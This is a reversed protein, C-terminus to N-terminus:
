WMDNKTKESSSAKEEHSAKIHTRLDSDSAFWMDKGHSKCYPCSIGLKGEDIAEFSGLHERSILNQSIELKIENKPQSDENSSMRISSITEDTFTKKDELILRGIECLNTEVEEWLGDKTPSKGYVYFSTKEPINNKWSEYGKELELRLDLRSIPVLANKDKEEEKMLPLYLNKRKDEDDRQSNVYGIQDLRNLMVRISEESLKKRFKENYELTLEKLYWSDRTKVITHYFDLIRKETGTRTTEFIQRYIEMAVGLDELTSLLFDTEGEKMHPRQLYPLLTITQLLQVFHQFDRMDRTIQHPFVSYLNLFPVVVDAQSKTLKDFLFRLLSNLAKFTQTEQKYRWPLSAKVNTLINAGLIKLESDDPTATFSRTALEVMYKNDCTLFITAPWGRLKVRRTQLQGKGTKDVFQYEIEEKDHSLIPRLMMFTEYDPSELFVLIKHTLDVLTYSDRLEERKARAKNQYDQLAKKFSNKDDKQFDKQKPKEPKDDWDIPKRYKNLLVGHSHVLSKRSIAGLYWVYEQPFYKLAEVTDYTKGVGSEGRLFLNLPDKGIASLGTYFVALKVPKDKKVRKDLDAILCTTLDEDRWFQTMDFSSDGKSSGEEKATEKEIKEM